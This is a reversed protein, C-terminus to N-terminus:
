PATATVVMEVSNGASMWLTTKYVGPVDGAKFQLDLRGVPQPGIGLTTGIVPAAPLLTPCDFMPDNNNLRVKHGRAGQPADIRIRGITNRFSFQGPVKRLMLWHNRGVRILKVNDLPEDNKGWLLFTWVFPADEGVVTTQYVPNNPNPPLQGPGCAGGALADVLVSTVNISPRTRAYVRLLGEGTEVTGDPGTEAEVRITYKGPAPNRLGHLILHIQKIYPARDAGPVLGIDKEATLVLANETEDISLLHFQFPPFLPDQPWGRLVVATTCQLNGPVCPLVPSLPPTSVPYAPDINSLDFEPPLFVKITGGAALGRGLVQSDLSGDLTIVYDFPQGTVNGDAIVPAKDISAIIGTAGAQDAVVNGSLFVIIAGAFVRHTLTTTLKNM